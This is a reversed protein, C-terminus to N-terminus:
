KMGKRLFEFTRVTKTTGAATEYTVTGTYKVVCYGIMEDDVVGPPYGSLLIITPEQAYVSSIGPAQDIREAYLLLGGELTQVVKAGPLGYESGEKFSTQPQSSAPVILTVIIAFVLSTTRM